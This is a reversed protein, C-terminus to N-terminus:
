TLALLYAQHVHLISFHLMNLSERKASTYSDLCVKSSAFHFLCLFLDVIYRLLM